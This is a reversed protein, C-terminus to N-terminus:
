ARGDVIVKASGVHVAESSPESAQQWYCDVKYEGPIKPAVYTASGGPLIAGNDEAEFRYTTGPNADFYCVGGWSNNAVEVANIGKATVVFEEGARVRVTEFRANRGAEAPQVILATALSLMLAVAALIGGNRKSLTGM